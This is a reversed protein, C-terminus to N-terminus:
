NFGCSISPSDKLNHGLANLMSKRGAIYPYLYTHPRCARKRRLRLLAVQLRELPPTGGLPRISKIKPLPRAKVKKRSFLSLWEPAPPPRAPSRAIAARSGVGAASGTSDNFISSSFPFALSFPSFSASRNRRELM